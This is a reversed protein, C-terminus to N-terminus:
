QEVAGMSQFDSVLQTWNFGNPALLSGRNIADQGLVAYVSGYKAIAAWTMLGLMGWTDIIVGASNYGVGCFAHGAEPDAM